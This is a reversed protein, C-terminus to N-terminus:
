HIIKFDSFSPSEIKKPASFIAKEIKSTPSGINQLWHQRYVFLSISFDCFRLLEITGELMEQIQKTNGEMQGKVTGAATNM